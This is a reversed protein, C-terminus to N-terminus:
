NKGIINNEDFKFPGGNGVFASSVPSCGPGGTLWIVLPDKTGDNNSKM